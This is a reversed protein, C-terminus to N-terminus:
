GVDVDVGFVDDLLVGIRELSNFPVLFHYGLM